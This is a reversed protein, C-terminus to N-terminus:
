MMAIRELPIFYFRHINFATQDDSALICDSHRLAWKLWHHLFHRRFWGYSHAPDTLFSLDRVEIVTRGTASDVYRKMTRDNM